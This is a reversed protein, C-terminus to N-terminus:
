EGPVCSEVTGIAPSLGPAARAAPWVQALALLQRLETDFDQASSFTQPRPESDTPRLGANRARIASALGGAYVEMGCGAGDSPATNTPLYPGLHLLADRIEVTVRLLRATTDRRNLWGPPPMLVIEPVAATVDRWLPHLRRCIRGDRDWGIQAQLHEVVPSAILTSALISTSTFILEMRVIHPPFFDWGLTLQFVFLALDTWFPLFALLMLYCFARAVPGLTGSRLERICLRAFIVATAVQPAAFATSVVIGGWNLQESLRGVSAASPGALLILAASGVAVACYVRQRRWLGEPGSEWVRAMGYLYMGLMVICGLALQNPVSGIDPVPTFRYLVLGILCWLPLRNVLQDIATDRTFVLRGVAVVAVYGIM